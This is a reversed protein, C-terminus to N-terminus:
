EANWALETFRAYSADLWAEREAPALKAFEAARADYAKAIAEPGQEMLDLCEDGWGVLVAPRRELVEEFLRDIDGEITTMVYWAAGDRTRCGLEYCRSVWPLWAPGPDRRKYVWVLDELRVLMTRGRRVQLLWSRTLAVYNPRKVADAYFPPGVVWVEEGRLEQDVQAIVRDPAGFATLRRMLEPRFSRHVFRCVVWTWIAFFVLAAALRVWEAAPLGRFPDVGFSARLVNYALAPVTFGGAALSIASWVFPRPREARLTARLQPRPQRRKADDVSWPKGPGFPPRPSWTFREFPDNAYRPLDQVAAHLRWMSESHRAEREDSPLSQWEERERRIRTNFAEPGDALLKLWEDDYGAAIGPRRRLLEDLAADMEAEDDLAIFAWRDGRFYLRLGLARRRVAWTVYRCRSLFIWLIDNVPVARMGAGGVRVLWRPTLVAFGPGVWFSWFSPNGFRRVGNAADIEADIQRLVGRSSAEGRWPLWERWHQWWLAFLPGGLFIVVADVFLLVGIHRASGPILHAVALVAMVAVVVLLMMRKQRWLFRELM